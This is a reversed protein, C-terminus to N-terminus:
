SGGPGGFAAAQQRWILQLRRWQEDRRPNGILLEGYQLGDDFRFRLWAVRSLVVSGSLLTLSEVRGNGSLAELSGTPCIRIRDIRSAAQAQSRIELLCRVLWLGALVFKLEPRVPLGLVLLTGLLCAGGAFALLAKRVATV